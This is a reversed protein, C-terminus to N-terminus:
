LNFCWLSMVFMWSILGFGELLLSGFSVYILQKEHVFGISLRLWM